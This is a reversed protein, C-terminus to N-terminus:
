QIEVNFSVRQAGYLTFPETWKSKGVTVQIRHNGEYVPIEGKIPATGVRNGDIFIAAGEPAKVAVFGKEFTYSESVPESKLTIARTTLISLAKNQLTFVKRGPPLKGSWPTRGLSKGELLLEVGPSSEINIPVELVVAAVVGADVVEPATVGVIGADETTGADVTEEVGADVAVEVVLAREGNPRQRIFAYVDTLNAQPDLKILPADSHSSARVTVVSAFCAAAGFFLAGTRVSLSAAHRTIPTLITKM